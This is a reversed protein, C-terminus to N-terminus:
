LNRPRKAPCGLLKAIVPTDAEPFEYNVLDAREVWRIEDHDVLSFDGSVTYARYVHLEIAPGHRAAHYGSGVFEGVDAEVGLEERLERRLCEEPTEGPELKGGPFEWLREMQMGKKRRAILIKGDREILAGIVTIVLPAEDM